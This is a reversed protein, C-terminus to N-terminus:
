IRRFATNKQSCQTTQGASKAGPLRAALRAALSGPGCGLDVVLPNPVDAVAAAVIDALVAFREERDAMYGEQQADWRDMWEAAVEPAIRVENTPTAM